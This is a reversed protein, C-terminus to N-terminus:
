WRTIPSALTALLVLRELVFDVNAIFMSRRGTCWALFSRRAPRSRNLSVM